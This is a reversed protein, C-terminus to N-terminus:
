GEYITVSYVIIWYGFAGCRWKKKPLFSFLTMLTTLLSLFFAISPGPIEGLRAFGCMQCRFSFSTFVSTLSLLHEGASRDDAPLSPRHMKRM